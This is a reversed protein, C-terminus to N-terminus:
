VKWKLRARITNGTGDIQAPYLDSSNNVNYLFHLGDPPYRLCPHDANFQRFLRHARPIISKKDPHWKSRLFGSELTGALM